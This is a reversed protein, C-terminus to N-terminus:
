GGFGDKLVAYVQLDRFVGDSVREGQREIGEFVFGLRKPISQSPLNGVGCCIEVRNMHLDNFAFECMRKVALTMIGQKQYAKKLWYGIKTKQNRIDTQVFSILGAFQGNKRICFIYEKSKEVTELASKIFRETDALEKTLTIFPLWEGLYAREQDITHFIDAADSTKLPELSLNENITLQM